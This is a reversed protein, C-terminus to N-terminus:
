YAFELIDTSYTKSLDKLMKIFYVDNFDSQRLSFLLNDVFLDFSTHTVPYIKGQAKNLESSVADEICDSFLSKFWKKVKEEKEKITNKKNEEAIRKLEGMTM